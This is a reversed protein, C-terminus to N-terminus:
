AAQCEKWYYDHIIGGLVERRCVEGKTTLPKRTLPKPSVPMQQGIGQHPRRRNYYEIYELLVLKLHRNSMILLHDLCEERVTRVWREAFANAKPSRYPTLITKVQGGHRL